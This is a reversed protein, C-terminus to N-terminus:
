HNVKGIKEEISRIKGELRGSQGPRNDFNASCYIRGSQRELIENAKQLVELAEDMTDTEIVTGMPTLLHCSCKERVMRIVEGVYSSVSEGNDTPFISFETLVSM